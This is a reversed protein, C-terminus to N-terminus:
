APFGFPVSATPTTTQNEDILDATPGHTRVNQFSLTCGTATLIVFAIKMLMNVGM